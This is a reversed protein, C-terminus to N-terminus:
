FFHGLTKLYKCLVTIDSSYDIFRSLKHCFPICIMMGCMIYKLYSEVAGMRTSSQYINTWLIQVGFHIVECVILVCM